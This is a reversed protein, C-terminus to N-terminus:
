AVRLRESRAVRDIAACYAGMRLSIKDRQSRERIQEYSHLLAIAIERELKDQVPSLRQVNNTWEANAALVPAAAAVLDPVVLVDRTALSHEAEPTIVLASTELVMRARVRNAAAANLTCEPAALVLADCDITHIDGAEAAGEFGALGGTDRLHTALSQMDIGSSCYLTGREESIAVVICGAELLAFATYFASRDLSQVTVRLGSPSIEKDQAARLVLAAIARGVIKDAEPLGGREAPKGLVAPVTDKQLASYEEAMWLMAESGANVGSACVDHYVGLVHHVRATYRRVLREFEKRSLQEPDCAVGGSAGGFPVGAVASLWTMSEAEARLTEIELGSQFRVPGLVPGRVGNHQVRYGRFLQLRDDDRRLPLEVTLERFPVSLLRRMEPHLRLRDAALDFYRRISSHASERIGAAATGLGM